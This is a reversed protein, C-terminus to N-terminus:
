ATEKRRFLRQRRRGAPPLAAGGPGFRGPPAAFGFSSRNVGPHEGIPADSSIWQPGQITADAGNITQDIVRDGSAEDFRWYGALGPELGTLRQHRDDGLERSSRPRNWLRVEDIRGTYANTPAGFSRLPAGVPVKGALDVTKDRLRGNVYFRCTRGDFTVALHNWQRPALIPRTTYEYWSQGDGFGFRLRTQRELWISPGSDKDGDGSLLLARPQLTQAPEPYLWAEQTFSAGLVPGNSVIVVVAETAFKLASEAYGETKIRHVLSKDCLKDPEGVRPEVCTGASTEFVEPHDVCTFIQSGRTNFLGDASREANFSDIRGTYRNQTFIQWRTIEAVQTPLLLVAFRGDKLNGVFRLEQTPEYFLAGARM